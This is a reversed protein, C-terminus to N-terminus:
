CDGIRMFLNGLLKKLAMRVEYLTEMNLPIFGAVKLGLPQNCRSMIIRMSRKFGKSAGFWDCAYLAESLGDNQFNRKNWFTWLILFHQPLIRNQQWLIHIYHRCKQSALQM